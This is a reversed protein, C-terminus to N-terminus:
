SATTPVWLKCKGRSSSIYQTIKAQLGDTDVALGTEDNYKCTAGVDATTFTGAGVTFYCEADPSKPVWALKPKLSTAYDSDTAAITEALIGAFNTTSNTVKTYTGDQVGYVASGAAIAVSAIMPLERMEWKNDAPYFYQTSIATM